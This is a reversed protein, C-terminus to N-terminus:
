DPYNDFLSQLKNYIRMEFRILIDSVVPILGAALVMFVKSNHIVFIASAVASLSIIRFAHYYLVFKTPKRCTMLLIGLMGTFATFVLWYVVIM